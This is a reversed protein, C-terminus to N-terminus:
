PGVEEGVAQGPPRGRAIAMAAAIDAAMRIPNCESVRARRAQRAEETRDLNSAAAEMAGALARYDGAPVISGSVDDLLDIASGVQDTAIVFLGAALAENVVIGWVERESPVVLIDCNAFAEALAAGELTGSIRVRAGFPAAARRVEAMMPGDGVISLTATPHRNAVSHFAEVMEVPHKREILRGVDLFRTGAPNGVPVAQVSPRPAAPLCSTVIRRPDAGLEVLYATAGSGNTVYSASVRVLRRRMWQSTAGRYLGSFPTSEAWMMSRKGSMRCWLVPELVMPSWSTTMVVDPQLRSLHRSVGVSMRLDLDRVPVRLAKSWYITYAFEPATGWLDHFGYAHRGSTYIVHLDVLKALENLM